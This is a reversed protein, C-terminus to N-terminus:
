FQRCILVYLLLLLLLLLLVNKTVFTINVTVIICKTVTCMGYFIYTQSCIGLNHCFLILMGCAVLSACVAGVLTRRPM